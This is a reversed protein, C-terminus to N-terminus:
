NDLIWNKLEKLMNVKFEIDITELLIYELISFKEV